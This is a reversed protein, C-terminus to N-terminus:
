HVLVSFFWCCGGSSNQGRGKPLLCCCPHHLLRKAQCLHVHGVQTSEFVLQQGADGGLARPAEPLHGSM